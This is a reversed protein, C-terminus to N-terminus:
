ANTFKFLKVEYDLQIQIEDKHDKSADPNSELLDIIVWGFWDPHMEREIGEYLQSVVM